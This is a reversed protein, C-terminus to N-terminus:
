KDASRLLGDIKVGLVFDNTHLGGIKHTYLEITLKKYDHIWLNPHHGEAEALEAIRDVMEVVAVFNKLTVERVLKKGKMVVWDVHLERRYEQIQEAGLTEAGERCPVCRKEALIGKM